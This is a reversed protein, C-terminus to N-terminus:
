PMVLCVATAQVVVPAFQCGDPNVCIAECTSTSPVTNNIQLTHVRRYNFGGRDDVSCTGGTLISTFPACEAVAEIDQRGPSNASTAAVGVAALETDLASLDFM